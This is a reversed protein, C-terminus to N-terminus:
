ALKWTSIFYFDVMNVTYIYIFFFTRITKKWMEHSLIIKLSFTKSQMDKKKRKSGIFCKKSSQCWKLNIKKITSIAAFENPFM